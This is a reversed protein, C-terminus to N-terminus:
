IAGGVVAEPYFVFMIIGFHYSYIYFMNYKGWKMKLLWINSKMGSKATLVVM